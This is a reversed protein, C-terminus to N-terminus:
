RLDATRIQWRRQLPYLRHNGAEDGPIGTRYTRGNEKPLGGHGQPHTQRRRHRIQAKQGTGMSTRLYVPLSRRGNTRSLIQGPRQQRHDDGAASLHHPVLRGGGAQLHGGGKEGPEPPPPAGGGAMGPPRDPRTRDTRHSDALGAKDRFGIREIYLNNELTNKSPLLEVIRSRIHSRGLERAARFRHHGDLIFYDEKIQYLSIPPM